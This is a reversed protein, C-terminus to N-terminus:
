QGMPQWGKYKYKADLGIPAYVSDEVLECGLLREASDIRYKVQISPILGNVDNYYQVTLIDVEGETVLEVIDYAVTGGIGGLIVYEKGDVTTVPAGLEVIQAPTVEMGCKDRIVPILDEIPMSNGCYRELLYQVPLRDSYTGYDCLDWAYEGAIWTKLVEVSARDSEIATVKEQGNYSLIEFFVERGLRVTTEYYGCPLTDLGSKTLTFDFYLREGDAPRYVTYHDLQLAAIEPYRDALTAKGSFHVFSNIFAYYEGDVPFAGDYNLAEWDALSTIMTGTDTVQVTPRHMERTYEIRQGVLYQYKKASVSLFTVAIGADSKQAAFAVTIDPDSHLMSSDHLTATFIGNADVSYTGTYRNAYESDFYGYSWQMQRTAPTLELSYFAEYSEAYYWQGEIDADQPIDYITYRKRNEAFVEEISAHSGAFVRRFDGDMDYKDSVTYYETAEGLVIKGDQIYAPGSSEFFTDYGTAAALGCVQRMLPMHNNVRVYILEGDDNLALLASDNIGPMMTDVFDEGIVYTYGIGYYDWTFIVCGEYAFLRVDSNGCLVVEDAMAVTHWYAHLTAPVDYSEMTFSVETPLGTVHLIYPHDPLAGAAILRDMGNWLDAADVTIEEQVTPAFIGLSLEKGTANDRLRASRIELEGAVYAYTYSLEWSKAPDSIFAIRMGCTLVGDRVTYDVSRYVMDNVLATNTDADADFMIYNKTYFVPDAVAVTQGDKGDTVTIGEKYSLAAKTLVKVTCIEAVGDGTLDMHYETASGQVLEESASFETDDTPMEAASVYPQVVTVTDGCILLNVKQPDYTEYPYEIEALKQTFDASYLTATCVDETTRTYWMSDQFAPYGLDGIISLSQNGDSPALKTQEGDATVQWIACPSTMGDGNSQHEEVFMTGDYIAIPYYKGKTETKEGTAVNYIGYGITWEWGGIRYALHEADMFGIPVYAVVDGIDEAKCADTDGLMVNTLIRKMSGDAYQIDIGGNGWGDEVTEYAVYQGDSSAFRQENQPYPETETPIVSFRGDSDTIAFACNVRYQGDGINERDYLICGGQTYSVTNPRAQADLTYGATICGNLADVVYLAKSREVLGQVGNQSREYILYVTYRADYPFSRYRMNENGLPLLVTHVDLDGENSLVRVPIQPTVPASGSPQTTEAPPADTQTTTISSPLDPTDDAPETTEKPGIFSCGVASLTLVVALVAAVARNKHKSTLMLLREKIPASGLGVAHAHKQPITDLITRAYAIRGADDLKAAVGEDCALEADQKSVIAAVWVLPNWWYVILALTRLAAWLHDGHRLHTYEHAIVFEKSESHAASPTLYIAPLLGALCPAGASQSIYVKTRGVTTHLCRDACLKQYFMAGTGAFWVAVAVSGAFWVIAAIHAWDIPSKEVVTPVEPAIVETEIPTVVTPETVTPVVPVTPKIPEAPMIPAASATPPDAAEQSAIPQQSVIPTIAAGV